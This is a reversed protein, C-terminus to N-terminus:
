PVARFLDAYDAAFIIEAQYGEAELTTTRGVFYVPRDAYRRQAREMWPDDGPENVDIWVDPRQKEVLHLYQLLMGQEWHTMIVANPEVQALTTEAFDRFLWLWNKNSYPYRSQCWILTLAFLVLVLAPRAYRVKFRRPFRLGKIIAAMGFTIWLSWPLLMPLTFVPADAVAPGLLFLYLATILFVWLSGAFLLKQRQFLALAGGLGVWVGLPGFEFWMRESLMRLTEGAEGASPIRFIGRRVVGGGLLDFLEGWSQPSGWFYHTPLGYDWGNFPGYLAYQVIPYLLPLFGLAFSLVLRSWEEFSWDPLLDSLKATRWVPSRWLLYAVFLPVGCIVFLGHYSFGLATVFSALYLYRSPRAKSRRQDLYLLCALSVLLLVLLAYVEAVTAANWLGPSCGLFLTALLAALRSGSLRQLLAYFLGLAVAAAIASLMTVRWALDGFPLMLTNLKALLIYLPYTTPHPVGLLVAAMQFEASDGSLVSPAATYTYLALFAVFVAVSLIWRKM